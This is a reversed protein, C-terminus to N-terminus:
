FKCMDQLEDVGYLVDATTISSMCEAGCGMMNEVCDVCPLNKFVSVSVSVFECRKSRTPGFRCMAIPM